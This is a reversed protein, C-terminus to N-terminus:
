ADICKHTCANVGNGFDLGFRLYGSNCAIEPKPSHLLIGLIITQLQVFLCLAFSPAADTWLLSAESLHSSLIYTVLGGLNFVYFLNHRGSSESRPWCVAVGEARLM